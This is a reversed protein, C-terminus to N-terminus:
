KNRLKLFAQLIYFLTAIFQQKLFYSVYIDARRYFASYLYQIYNKGFFILVDLARQYFM